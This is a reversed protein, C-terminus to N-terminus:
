ADSSKVIREEMLELKANPDDPDSHVFLEFNPETHTGRMQHATCRVDFTVQKKGPAFPDGTRETESLVIDFYPLSEGEVLDEIPFGTLTTTLLVNPGEVVPLPSRLWPMIVGTPLDLTDGIALILTKRALPLMAKVSDSVEDIARTSHVIQTRLNRLKNWEDDSAKALATVAHRIGSSAGPVQTLKGCSKCPKGPYTTPLNHKKQLLPNVAELADWTDEFRDIADTDAYSRRLLRLARSLRKRSRDDIRNWSEHFSTFETRKFFRRPKGHFPLNRQIQGFSRVDTGQTIELALVPEPDQISAAQSASLLDAVSHCAGIARRFAHKPDTAHATVIYELGVHVRPLTADPLVSQNSVRVTSDTFNFVVNEELALSSLGYLWIRFPKM